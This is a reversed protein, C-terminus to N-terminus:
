RGEPQALAVECADAVDKALGPATNGYQYSRLALIAAQIAAVLAPRPATSHQARAGVIACDAQTLLASLSVSALERSDAGVANVRIMTTDPDIDLADVILNLATLAASLGGIPDIIGAAM